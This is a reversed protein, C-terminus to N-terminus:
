ECVASGSAIELLFSPELKTDPLRDSFGASLSFAGPKFPACLLVQIPKLIEHVKVFM